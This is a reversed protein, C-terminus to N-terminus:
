REPVTEVVEGGRRQQARTAKSGWTQKPPTEEQIEGKEAAEKGVKQDRKGRKTLLNM